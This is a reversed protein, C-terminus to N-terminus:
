GRMAAARPERLLDLLLAKRDVRQHVVGAVTAGAGEIPRFGCRLEAHDIQL